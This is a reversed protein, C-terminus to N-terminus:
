GDSGGPKGILRAGRNRKIYPWGWQVMVLLKNDFGILYRIHVFIWLLWAAIGSLKLRGGVAVAANRGIVALSGKDRFRFASLVKGDLRARILDDAYRGQQMAVTAVGPLEGTEPHALDGIVIIEPHNTVSLEPSVLVRGVKDLEASTRMALVKGMASGAIGAAWLVIRAQLQDSGISVVGDGLGTVAAGTRVTVGLRKLAETAKESMKPPYSPLIREGGELLIIQALTPDFNSFDNKFTGTALEGLSGALEVGTSGGGVIVFTLLALREDEDTEREAAEFAAFVRARIELADEITKLGPAVQEWEDKGYYHHRVGTAVILTDYEIEGDTLMLRRKQADLDLADAM